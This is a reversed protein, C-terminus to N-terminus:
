QANAVEAKKKDLLKQLNDRMQLRVAAYSKDITDEEGWYPVFYDDGLGTCHSIRVSDKNVRVIQYVAYGDAIPEQIYRWLIEGKNRAEADIADLQAQNENMLAHSKEWGESWNIDKPVFKPM